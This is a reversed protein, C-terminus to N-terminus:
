TRNDSSHKAAHKGELSRLTLNFYHQPMTAAVHVLPKLSSRLLWYSFGELTNRENGEGDRTETPQQRRQFRKKLAM